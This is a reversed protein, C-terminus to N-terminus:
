MHLVLRAGLCSALSYICRVMRLTTLQKMIFKKILGQGEKGARKGQSCWIVTHLRFCLYLIEVIIILLHTSLVSVTSSMVGTNDYM